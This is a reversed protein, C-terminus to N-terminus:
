RYGTFFSGWISSAQAGQKIQDNRYCYWMANNWAENYQPSEMSKYGDIANSQYFIKYFTNSGGSMGVNCGDEWGQQFDPSASALREKFSADPREPFKRGIERM